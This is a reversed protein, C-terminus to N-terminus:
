VLLCKGLGLALAVGLGVRAVVHASAVGRGLHRDERPECEARRDVDILNWILADLLQLGVVQLIRTLQPKAQLQDAGGLPAVAPERHAHM